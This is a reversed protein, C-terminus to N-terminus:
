EAGRSRRLCRIRDRCVVAEARTAILVTTRLETESDLLGCWACQDAPHYLGLRGTLIKSQSLQTPRRHSGADPTQQPM